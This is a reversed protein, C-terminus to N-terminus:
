IQAGGDAEGQRRCGDGVWGEKGREYKACFMASILVVETGLYKDNQSKEDVKIV